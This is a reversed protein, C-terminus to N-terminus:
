EPLGWLPAVINTNPKAPGGTYAYVSIANRCNSGLTGPFRAGPVYEDLTPTEALFKHVPFHKSSGDAMGLTLGGTPAAIDDVQETTECGDINKLFIARWYERIAMPYVTQFEPGGAKVAFPAAYSHPLELILMAASPNPIGSTTGGTHPTSTFSTVSAGTLGLNLAFANLIQGNFNWQTESKRRMSHEFIEIERVYPNVYKQWSQWTMFHAWGDVSNCRVVGDNNLAPNLSSDPDCGGRMPLRDDHESAYMMMSMGIQRVNSIAVTKKSARKASAFVPFLIAALLCIIAIVVLLEILTFGSM